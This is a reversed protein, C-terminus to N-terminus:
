RGAKNRQMLRGAIFSLFLFLAIVTFVFRIGYAEGLYALFFPGIIGGLDFNSQYITNAAV